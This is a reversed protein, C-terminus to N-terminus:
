YKYSKVKRTGCFLAYEFKGLAKKKEGDADFIAEEDNEAFFRKSTIWAGFLYMLRYEKTRPISVKIKGDIEKLKDRM